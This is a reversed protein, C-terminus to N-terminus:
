IPLRASSKSIKSSYPGGTEHVPFIELLLGIGPNGGVPDFPAIHAAVMGLKGPDVGEVATAPCKHGQPASLEFLM